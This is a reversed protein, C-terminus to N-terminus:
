IPLGRGERNQQHLYKVMAHYFEPDQALKLAVATVLIVNPPVEDDPGYQHRLLESCGNARVILAADGARLEMRLVAPNEAM